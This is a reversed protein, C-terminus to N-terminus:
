THFVCFTKSLAKKEDNEYMIYNRTYLFFKRCLSNDYHIEHERIVLIVLLFFFLIAVMFPFSLCTSNKSTLINDIATEVKCRSM